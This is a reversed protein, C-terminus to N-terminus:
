QLGGRGSAKRGGIQRILWKQFDAQDSELAFTIELEGSPAPSLCWAANAKAAAWEAIKGALARRQGPVMVVIELHYGGQIDIPNFMLEGGGVM